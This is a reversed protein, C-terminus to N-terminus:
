VRLVDVEFTMNASFFIGTWLQPRWLFLGLAFCGPWLVRRCGHEVRQRLAQAKLMISRVSVAPQLFVLLEQELYLAALLMVDMQRVSAPTALWQRRAEIASRFIEAFM